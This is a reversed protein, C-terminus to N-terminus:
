AIEVYTNDPCFYITGNTADAEVVYGVIRVNNSTPIVTTLLGNVSDIYLKKGAPTTGLNSTNYLASRAFGRILIGNAPTTGVAIGLMGTSDLVNSNNAERWGNSTGSETNNFCILDGAAPTEVFTGFTVIEGNFESVATPEQYTLSGSIEGGLTTLYSSSDTVVANLSTMMSANLMHGGVEIEDTTYKKGM